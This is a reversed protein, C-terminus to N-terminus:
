HEGDTPHVVEVATFQICEVVMGSLEEDIMIYGKILNFVRSSYLALPTHTHRM